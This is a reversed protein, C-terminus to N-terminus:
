YDVSEIRYRFVRSPAQVEVEEGIARDILAKGVPSAVSIKGENANVEGPGVLTYTVERGSQLDHLKVRCGMRALGGGLGGEVVVARKLMSELERIRAELHAQQERAADLPANERFDKDAMATRLADAIKPRQARLSELEGELATRGDATMEIKDPNITDSSSSSSTRRLRIHVGLNDPTIGSKKAWALFSRLVDLRRQADTARANEQTYSEITNGLLSSFPREGGYWRIFRNVEPTQEQRAAPQLSQLYRQGADALSITDTTAEPV